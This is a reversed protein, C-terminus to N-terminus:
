PPQALWRIRGPGGPTPQADARRSAQGVAGARAVGWGPPGSVRHGGVVGSCGESRGAVARARHGALHVAARLCSAAMVVSASVASGTAARSRVVPFTWARWWARAVLRATRQDAHALRMGVLDQAVGLARAPLVPRHLVGRRSASVSRHDAGRCSKAARQCGSADSAVGHQPCRSKFPLPCRTLVQMALVPDAAM